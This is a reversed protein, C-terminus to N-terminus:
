DKNKDMRKKTAQIAEIFIFLMLDANLVNNNFDINFKQKRGLRACLQKYATFAALKENDSLTSFKAYNSLKNIFRTYGDPAAQQPAANQQQSINANLINYIDYESRKNTKIRYNIDRLSLKVNKGLQADYLEMPQDQNRYHTNNTFFYGYKEIRSRVVNDTLRPIGRPM